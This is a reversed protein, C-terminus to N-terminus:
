RRHRHPLPHIPGVGARRIGAWPAAPPERSLAPPAPTPRAHGPQEHRRQLPFQQAAYYRSAAARRPGVVIVIAPLLAHRHHDGAPHLVRRIRDSDGASPAQLATLLCQAVVVFQFPDCRM